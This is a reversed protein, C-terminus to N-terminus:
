EPQIGGAQIAKRTRDIDRTLYARFDQASGAAPVAGNSEFSEKLAAQQLATALARRLTDAIPQPLGKPAMLGIWGAFEFGRVTDAISPVNPIPHADQAMSHGLLRLRGSSVLGLAAPAPTLVWDTEGSVVSAVGASGSKYPVHLSEFGAATQLAVGALHSASGIGASAMNTKGGRSRAYAVLDATTKINLAPTCVLVNPLLAVLSVFDFDALPKYTVAKQLLPAVTISSSSAVILSYGDPVATRGAEIGIAGAAGAKNDVVIPQGLPQTMQNSLIRGITDVSSGAANPVIFRVPRQPYATQALAGLPMGGAAAMALLTSFQRRSLHVTKRTSDHTM